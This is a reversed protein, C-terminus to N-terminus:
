FILRFHDGTDFDLAELSEILKKYKRFVEKSQKEGNIYMGNVDMDIIYDKRPLILGDDRLEQRIIKEASAVKHDPTFEGVPPVPPLPPMGYLLYEDMGKEHFDKEIDIQIDMLQDQYEEAAWQYEKMDRLRDEWLDESWEFGELDKLQDEMFEGSWEFSGSDTIIVPHNGGGIFIITDITELSDKKITIIKERHQIRGPSEPCSYFYHMEPVHPPVPYGQQARYEFHRGRWAPGSDDCIVIVSDGNGSASDSKTIIIFKKEEGFRAEDTKKREIATIYHQRARDYEQANRDMSEAIRELEEQQVQDTSDTYVSIKVKGSKSTAIVTDPQEIMMGAQPDPRVQSPQSIGKQIDVPHIALLNFTREGSERGTLDYTSPIYSLANLSLTFILTVLLLFAIIGEGFGKKMKVPALLRKVRFLLRKKSGTIATALVPSKSNLEEMTTLAKIYNLHDHNVSVALDDCIHEREQRIRESLWWTVPHYFFLLEVLSQIINLLYDKRMIHALEHLLIADIQQPPVGSLTGVPLLIIPKLYGITLPIRALASEALKVKQHLGIQGSLMNLKAKWHDSVPYVQRHRLRNIYFISGSFRILFFLFGTFWLM